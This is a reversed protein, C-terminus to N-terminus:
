EERLISMPEAKFLRSAPLAAATLAAGVLLLTGGGVAVPDLPAVGLLAGRALFALPVAAGLGLAIGVGTGRLSDRLVAGVVQGRGAGMAQRIAMERFRRGVAFSVIGFVGIFALVLAFVGAFSLIAGMIKNGLFRFEVYDAYAGPEIPTFAAGPPAVEQRLIPVLAQAGVRGKAHVIARVPADQLYSVWFFPHVQGGGPRPPSAVVGVIELTAAEQDQQLDADFWRNVRFREGVGDGGPLFRDLFAQNVVAVRPAGERDGSQVARGRLLPIGLMELYGPTVANFRIRVPEGEERDVMATAFDETFLHAEANRAVAVGEVEPRARVREGVELFRDRLRAPTLEEEPPDQWAIAVDTPDLGVDYRASARISRLALGAGIVFFTAAAVQGVVLLSRMSVRRRQASGLGTDRKLVPALNAASGRLAPALGAALSAGLALVVVFLLAVGDLSADFRLPVEMPLPIARFYGTAVHALVLGLAGGGLSLMVSEVMLMRFLRGRGAGLSVRVAMEWERGLARALLLGAVNSCALLLILLAGGLTFGATGLLAIRIGPPVRSDAESMVTLALPEGRSDSWAEPHEARLRSALLEMEAQAEELTRGPALRGLMFFQRSRRDALARATARYLGGPVGVPVWADVELNLFRARLGAPAVGVVTYPQGDLQVVRGLVGPDAGFRDRWERNSLVILREAKGTVTEEPLFARGLVPTVGLVAFYEGSVLEVIMRDRAEPDGVTLVGVRHAALEVLTRAEAKIDVYDPFSTEGYLGGGDESPFVAVIREPEGLPGPKGLVLARGLSFVTASVGIGLGLSLVTVLVVGPAKRLTRSALQVDRILEEVPRVGREERTKEKFREVGGFAVLARRRAEAPGMGARLNKETEMELHFRLEDDMEADLSRRGLLARMREVLPRVGGM